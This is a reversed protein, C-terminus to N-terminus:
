TRSEQLSTMNSTCLNDIRGFETRHQTLFKKYGVGRRASENVAASLSNKRTGHFRIPLINYHIIKNALATCNRIHTTM